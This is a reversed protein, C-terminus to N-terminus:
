GRLKTWLLGLYEHWAQETKKLQKSQWISLMGDEDPNNFDGPAAIPRLGENEFLLIARPMHYASTVLLFQADGVRKKMEWAEEKTDKVNEQMVIDQAPIGSEQLLLSTKFADSAKDHMSYGSTVIKLGQRMHYLRIAEWARKERDGGLLLIYTVDQPIQEVRDYRSELNNLLLNSFPAYTILSIWLFAILIYRKSRTAKQRYIYWFSLLLM